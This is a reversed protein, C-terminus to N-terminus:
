WEKNNTLGGEAKERVGKNPNFLSLQDTDPDKGSPIISGASVISLNCFLM